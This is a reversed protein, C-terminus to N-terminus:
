GPSNLFNHFKDSYINPKIYKAYSIITTEQNNQFKRLSYIYPYINM